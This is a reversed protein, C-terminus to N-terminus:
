YLSVDTAVPGQGFENVNIYIGVFYGNYPTNFTGSQYFLFGDDELSSPNVVFNNGFLFSGPQGNTPIAFVAVNSSGIHYWGAAGGNVVFYTAATGAPLFETNNPGKVLNANSLHNAKLWPEQQSQKSIASAYGAAQKASASAAAASKQVNTLSPFQNALNLALQAYHAANAAALRAASVNAQEQQLTSGPVDYHQALSDYYAAQAAYTSAQHGAGTEDSIQKSRAQVQKHQEQALQAMTEMAPRTDVPLAKTTGFLDQLRYPFGPRFSRAQRENRFAFHLFNWGMADHMPVIWQPLETVTNTYPNLPGQGVNKYVEGVIYQRQANGSGLITAPDYIQWLSFRAAEAENEFYFGMSTGPAWGSSLGVFWLPASGSGGYAVAKAPRKRRSWNTVLWLPPYPM